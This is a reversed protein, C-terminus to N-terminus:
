FAEGFAVYFANSGGRGVAYDLRLNTGERKDVLFRIGVGGNPMVHDRRWAATPGYQVSLGGFAALGLRWLASSRVEAQLTSLHRDRDRGLYYGRVYEDGGLMAMDFFPASGLTWENYWRLAATGIDGRTHYTRVDAVAKLYPDLGFMPGVAFHGLRGKKPALLHDRSDKLLVARFGGVTAAHLEGPTARETDTRIRRYSAMRMQAGVFWQEGIQRLLRADALFRDSEFGLEAEAPTAPGIGYYLDPYRSGHLLGKSSWGEGRTFLEWETEAVVQRNWTYNFEAKFNSARTLSDAYFDVTFLAVAGVYTRTEPSHGLAPVPLVKVQPGATQRGHIPGALALLCVM